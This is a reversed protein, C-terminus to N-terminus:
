NLALFILPHIVFIYVPVCVAIFGASFLGAKRVKVGTTLTPSRRYVIAGAALAFPIPMAVHSYAVIQAALSETDILRVFVFGIGLWASLCASSLTILPLAHKMKQLRGTPSEIVWM